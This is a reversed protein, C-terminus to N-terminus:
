RVVSRSQKSTTSIQKFEVSDKVKARGGRYSYGAFHYNNIVGDNRIDNIYLYVPMMRSFAKDRILFNKVDGWSPDFPIWGYDELFVEAWNHKPSVDDFRVTYGAVFRAPIGKARCIAVFLDTYETCDGKKWELAKVAGWDKGKHATYEINDIVYNYINKVIDIQRQGDITEAIEQIEAHDKEIYKEHRLFDRLKFEKYPYHGGNQKATLFDYKFLEAKITILVEEKKGPKVFVFEAYRNGNRNFIRSPKQSYRISLIKQREPITKPLVVVLNVRSTGKPASVDYSLEMEITNSQITRRPPRQPYKGRQRLISKAIISENFVCIVILLFLNFRRSARRLEM